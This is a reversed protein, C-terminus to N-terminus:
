NVTYLTSLRPKMMSLDTDSGMNLIKIVVGPKIFEIATLAAFVVLPAM